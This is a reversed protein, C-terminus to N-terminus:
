AGRKLSRTASIAFHLTGLGLEGVSHVQPLDEGVSVAEVGNDTAARHPDDDRRVISPEVGLDRLRRV